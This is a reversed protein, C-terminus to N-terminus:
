MRGVPIEVLVQREIKGYKRTWAEVELPTLESSRRLTTVQYSDDNKQRYEVQLLTDYIMNNRAKM